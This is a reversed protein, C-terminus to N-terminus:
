QARADNGGRALWAAEQRGLETSPPGDVWPWLEDAIARWNATANLEGLVAFLGLNIRQVIVFSRPLNAAKMIDGFESTPDFYRRVADSSWQPTITQAEYTQV